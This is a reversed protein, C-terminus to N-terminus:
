EGWGGRVQTGEKVIVGEEATMRVHVPRTAEEMDGFGSL